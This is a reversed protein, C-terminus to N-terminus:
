WDEPKDTNDPIKALGRNIVYSQAAVVAVLTTVGIYTSRHTNFHNKVTEITKKM